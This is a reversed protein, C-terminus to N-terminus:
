KSLDQLQRLKSLAAGNDISQEALRVGDGLSDAVGGAVIAAAANLVVVDRRPGREGRLIGEIIAANAHADGGKIKEASVSFFGFDEPCITYSKIAGNKLERITSPASISIEDVGDNGHIVFAHRTGLEQLSSAVLNLVMMSSVGLVQFDPHAPNCLPGIFNFVTRVGLQNRAAMVHKMSRHYRQAFLFGIGIGTVAHRLREDSMQINIGLAEMVDASGCKSSAARNGHKAVRIGAGAVVFASATSINFTGSRDGGTGCTDLVPVREGNWFPEARERMVRAFTALESPTEGKMRLATLFAAVQADTARGEMLEEMAHRAELENLNLRDILKQIIDTIM